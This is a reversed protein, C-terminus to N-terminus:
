PPHVRVGTSVDNALVQVLFVVLVRDAAGMSEFSVLILAKGSEFQEITKESRM